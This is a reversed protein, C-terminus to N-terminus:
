QRTKNGPLPRKRYKDGEENNEESKKSTLKKGIYELERTICWQKFAWKKRQKLTKEWKKKSMYLKNM